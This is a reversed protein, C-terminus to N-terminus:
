GSLSKWGFMKPKEKKRLWLYSTRLFEGLTKNCGYSDVAPSYFTAPPSSVPPRQVPNCVKQKFETYRLHPMRTASWRFIFLIRARSLAQRVDRPFILCNILILTKSRTEGGKNWSRPKKGYTAAVSLPLPVSLLHTPPLPPSVQVPPQLSIAAMKGVPEERSGIAKRWRANLRCSQSFFQRQWTLCM